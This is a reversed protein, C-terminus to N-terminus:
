SCSVLNEPPMKLVKIKGLIKQKYIVFVDEKFNYEIRIVFDRLTLENLRYYYISNGYTAFLMLWAAYESIREIRPTFFVVSYAASIFCSLRLLSNIHAQGKRLQPDGLFITVSEKGKSLLDRKLRDM